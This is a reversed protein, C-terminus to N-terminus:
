KKALKLHFEGCEPCVGYHLGSKMKILAEAGCDPCIISANRKVRARKWSLADRSDVHYPDGGHQM